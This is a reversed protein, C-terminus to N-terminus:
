VVSKRDPLMGYNPQIDAKHHFLELDRSPFKYLKQTAGWGRNGPHLTVVYAYSAYLTASSNCLVQHSQDASYTIYGADADAKNFAWGRFEMGAKKPQQAPLTIVSGASVTVTGPAGVGGNADFVISISEAASAPFAMVASTFLMIIVMVLSMIRKKM